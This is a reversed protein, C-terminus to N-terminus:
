SSARTREPHRAASPQVARGSARPILLGRIFLLRPDDNDTIMQAIREILRGLATERFIWTHMDHQSPPGADADSTVSEQYFARLDEVVFRVLMPTPHTWNPGTASAPIQDFGCGEAVPSRM